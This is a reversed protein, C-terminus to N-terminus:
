EDPSLEGGGFLGGVIISAYSAGLARILEQILERKEQETLRGIGAPPEWPVQSPLLFEDIAEQTVEEGYYRLYQLGLFRRHERSLAPSRCAERVDSKTLYGKKALLLLPGLNSM